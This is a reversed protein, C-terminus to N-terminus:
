PTGQAILDRMVQQLSDKDYEGTIGQGDLHARTGDGAVTLERAPVPGQGPRVLTVTRPPQKHFRKAPTPRLTWGALYEAASDPTHLVYYFLLGLPGMSEAHAKTGPVMDPIELVLGRVPDAEDGVAFLSVPPLDRTYSTTIVFTPHCRAALTIGLEPSLAFHAGPHYGQGPTEEILLGREIMMTTCAEIMRDRPQPDSRLWSTALPEWFLPHKPGGLICLEAGNLMLLSAPNNHSLKAFLEGAAASREAATIDFSITM